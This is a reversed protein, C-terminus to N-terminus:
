WYSVCIGARQLAETMGIGTDVVDVRLYKPVNKTDESAADELSVIISVGGEETFKIANSALNLIVQRVRVLDGLWGDRFNDPVQIDLAIGKAKAAVQRDSRVSELVELLAFPREEMEIQNAEIKSYDLIDNIITLLTKTTRICTM